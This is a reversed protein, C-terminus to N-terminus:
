DRASRCGASTSASSSRTSGVEPRLQHHGAPRGHHARGARRHHQDPGAQPLQPSARLPRAGRHAPRPRALRQHDDRHRGARPGPPSTRSTPWWASWTACPTAPRPWPRVPPSPGTPRSTSCWATSTPPSSWGSRSSTSPSGTCRRSSPTSRSSGSPPRRKNKDASVYGRGREVTVDVALRGKANLSAIHLDPNLVEVDATVQLDGGHRRRAGCTSASTVPEDSQAGPGAPGQPEPHHRHCGGQGRSPPSSTCPRTSASRPSRAARSPRCCRAACRTAWRTGFGPDLPGIAFRQRNNEEEDVAEVTPRQIILM